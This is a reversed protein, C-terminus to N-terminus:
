SKRFRERLPFATDFVGLLSYASLLPPLLLAGIVAGVVGLRGIWAKRKAFGLFFLFAIGQVAFLYQFLPVLNVVVAAFFSRDDIGIFLEAFMAILYFWIFGRPVKWDRVPPLGALRSGSRNCIRRSISHTIAALAVSLLIFTSPIRMIILDVAQRIIDETMLTRVQEPFSELGDRIMVAVTQNLNSGLLTALLISLLFIGLYAVVGTTLVKRAAHGRVYAEAMAVAPILTALAMCLFGLAWAGSLVAGAALSAAAIAAFVKRDAKIYLVVAPIAAFWLTFIILPTFFTMYTLWLIVGWIATQKWSSGLKNTGLGKM